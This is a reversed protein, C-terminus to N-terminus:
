MIVLAVIWGLVVTALLSYVLASPSRLAEYSSQDVTDNPDVNPHDNLTATVYTRYKANATVTVYWVIITVFTFAFVVNGFALDTIRSVGYMGAVLVSPIVAGLVVIARFFGRYSRWRAKESNRVM